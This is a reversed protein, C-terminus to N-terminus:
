KVQDVFAKLFTIHHYNWKNIMDEMSDKARWKSITLQDNLSFLLTLTKRCYTLTNGNILDFEKKGKVDSKKRDASKGIIISHALAETRVVRLRKRLPDAYLNEYLARDSGDSILGRCGLFNYNAFYNVLMPISIINLHTHDKKSNSEDWIRSLGLAMGEFSCGFLYQLSPQFPADKDEFLLESNRFVVEAFTQHELLQLFEVKFRHSYEMHLSNPANVRM